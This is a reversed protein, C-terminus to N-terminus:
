ARALKRELIDVRSELEKLEFRYAVNDLRLKVDEQGRELVDLRKDIKDFRKTVSKDATEFGKNIMIALDDITTDKKKKKLM